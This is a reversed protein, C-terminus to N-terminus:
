THRAQLYGGTPIWGAYVDRRSIGLSTSGAQVIRDGITLAAQSLLATTMRGGTGFSPDPAGTAANLRTLLHRRTTGAGAHVSVAMIAALATAGIVRFLRALIRM